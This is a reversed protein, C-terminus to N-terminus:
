GDRATGAVIRGVTVQEDAGYRVMVGNDDARLGVRVAVDSTMALSVPPGLVQWEPDYYTPETNTTIAEPDMVRILDHPRLQSAPVKIFALHM